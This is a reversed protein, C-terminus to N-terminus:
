GAGEDCLIVLAGEMAGVVALEEVGVPVVTSLRSGVLQVLSVQFSEWYVWRVCVSEVVEVVDEVVEVVAVELLEIGDVEVEVEAENEVTRWDVHDVYEDIGLGVGAMASVEECSTEVHNEVVEEVVLVVVQVGEGGIPLVKAVYRASSAAQGAFTPQHVHM